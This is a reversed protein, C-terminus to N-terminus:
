TGAKKGGKKKKKLTWLSQQMTITKLFISLTVFDCLFGPLSKETVWWLTSTSLVETSQKPICITKKSQSLLVCSFFIEQAHHETLIQVSTLNKFTTKKGGTYASSYFQESDWLAYLYIGTPIERPQLQHLM